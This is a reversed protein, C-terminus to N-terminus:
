KSRLSFDKKFRECKNPIVPGQGTVKRRPTKAPYIESESFLKRACLRLSALNPRFVVDSITKKLSLTKARNIKKFRNQQVNLFCYDVGFFGIRLV